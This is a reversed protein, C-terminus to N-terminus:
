WSTVDGYKDLNGHRHSWCVEDPNYRSLRTRCGPYACRRDRRAKRELERQHVRELQEETLGGIREKM